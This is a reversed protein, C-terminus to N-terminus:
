EIKVEKSVAFKDDFLRLYYTGSSLSSIPLEKVRFGEGKTLQDYFITKGQQDVLQMLLEGQGKAMYVVNIFGPKKPNSFYDLLIGKTQLLSLGVIGSEFNEGRAGIQIIRYYVKSVDQAIVNEDVFGYTDPGKMSGGAQVLGAASFDAGDLSREVVFDYMLFKEDVTWELHADDGIKEVKFDKLGPIDGQAILLFSANWCCALIVLLTRM